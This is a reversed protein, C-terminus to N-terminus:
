RPNSQESPNVSAGNSVRCYEDESQSNEVLIPSWERIVFESLGVEEPRNPDIREWHSQSCLRAVLPLM